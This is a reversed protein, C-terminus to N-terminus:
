ATEINDYLRNMPKVEIRRNHKNKPLEFPRIFYKDCNFGEIRKDYESLFHGTIPHINHNWFDYPAKEKTNIKNMVNM